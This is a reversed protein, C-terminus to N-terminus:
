SLVIETKEKDSMEKFAKVYGLQDKADLIDTISFIECKRSFSNTHKVKNGSSTM